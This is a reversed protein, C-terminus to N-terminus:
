RTPPRGLAVGSRAHEEVGFLAAARVPYIM